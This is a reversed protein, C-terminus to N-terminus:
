IGDTEYNIEEVGMSKMVKDLEDDSVVDSAVGNVKADIKSQYWKYSYEEWSSYGFKRIIKDREENYKPKFREWVTRDKPISGDPNRGGIPILIKNWKDYFGVKVLPEEPDQDLEYISLKDEKGKKNPKEEVVPKEVIPVVTPMTEMYNEDMFGVKMSEIFKVGSGDDKNNLFEYLEVEDIFKFKYDSLCGVLLNIKDFENYLKILYANSIRMRISGSNILSPTNGVGILKNLLSVKSTNAGGKMNVRIFNCEGFKNKVKEIKGFERILVSMILSYRENRGVKSDVDFLDSVLKNIIEKSLVIYVRKKWFATNMIEFKEDYEKIIDTLINKDSNFYLGFEKESLKLEFNNYNTLWWCKIKNIYTKNKNM